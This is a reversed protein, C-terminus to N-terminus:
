FESSNWTYVTVLPSLIGAGGMRFGFAANTMLPAGARTKRQPLLISVGQTSAIVNHPASPASMRGEACGIADTAAVRRTTAGSQVSAALM